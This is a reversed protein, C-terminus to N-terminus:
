ITSSVKTDQVLQDIIPRLLEPKEKSLKQVKSNVKEFIDFHQIISSLRKSSISGSQNVGFLDGEGRNKLDADAIIFGDTNQEIVKLRNMGEYSINKDTVLFCFGPKQGRGVRGRLQHLSSLGFREPGYISMVTANVVNIGVEIVSTSILIDISGENFKELIIQKEEPKLQGHLAEIRLDPFYNKYTILHSDVNQLDLTESESIAPVVVYVQEKLSIRTKVFSLYKEYTAESIVRTQIGKRNSPITRITSIDLDGFQSLQLTRPIPTATMILSHTGKGKSVLRQRQEVGFKHQEDIIALQLNKFVVSEQFLSHTGIIMQINGNELNKYIEAKDKTKTSGLLLSTSIKNPILENITKMHQLALAETPCMFAVQAGAKICILAAMIAVSTKGCGVDGQLMRMMPYGTSFDKIIESLSNDQDKTLNYPFINKFEELEKSEVKILPGLLKKNKVRRATVKLQDILFEDFIISEKANKTEEKTISDTLGHLVQFSKNLSTQGLEKQIEFSYLEIPTDWLSNPIREILSKVFRGAVTNITPYEIIFKSDSDMNPNIKPNVIQLTGRYDQVQGMFIFEKLSELQKKLSPYANFWKLNLISESLTDRVVVTANFLPAKGKGMRKFAPTFNVSLVKCSGLFLDDIQIQEFSQVSPIEKLKLPFIWLLELITSIGAEQIKLTSQAPKKSRSLATIPSEWTLNNTSM